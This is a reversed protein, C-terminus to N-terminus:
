TTCTNTISVKKSNRSGGFCCGLLTSALSGVLCRKEKQARPLMKAQNQSAKKACDRKKEMTRPKKRNQMAISTGRRRRPKLLLQLSSCPELETSKILHISTLYEVNGQSRPYGSAQVSCARATISSPPKSCSWLNNNHDFM